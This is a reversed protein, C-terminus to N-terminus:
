KRFGDTRRVPNWSAGSCHGERSPHILQRGPGSNALRLRTKTTPMLQRTRRRHIGRWSIGSTLSSCCISMMCTSVTASHVAGHLCAQLLSVLQHFLEARSVAFVATHRVKGRPAPVGSGLGAGPLQSGSAPLEDFVSNAAAWSARHRNRPTSPASPLGVALRVCSAGSRASCTPPGLLAESALTGKGTTPLRRPIGM